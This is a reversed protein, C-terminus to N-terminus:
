QIIYEYNKITIIPVYVYQIFWVGNIWVWECGYVNEDSIDKTFIWGQARNTWLYTWYGKCKRLEDPTIVQTGPKDPIIIPPYGVGQCPNISSSFSVTKDKNYFM